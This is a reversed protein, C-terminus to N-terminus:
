VRLEEEDFFEVDDVPDEYFEVDRLLFTIVTWMGELSGYGGYSASSRGCLM